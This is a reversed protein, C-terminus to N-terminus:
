LVWAKLAVAGDPKSVLMRQLNEYESQRWTNGHKLWRPPCIARWLYGHSECNECIEGAPEGDDTYGEYGTGVCIPCQVKYCDGLYQELNISRWWRNRRFQEKIAWVCVVVPILLCVVFWFIKEIM